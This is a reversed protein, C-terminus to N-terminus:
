SIEICIKFCLLTAEEPCANSGCGGGENHRTDCGRARDSLPRQAFTPHAAGVAPANSSAPPLADDILALCM